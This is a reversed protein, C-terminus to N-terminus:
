GRRSRLHGRRGPLLTLMRPSSRPWALHEDILQGIRGKLLAAVADRADQRDDEGM